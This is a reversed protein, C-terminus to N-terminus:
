FLLWPHQIIHYHFSVWHDSHPILLLCNSYTINFNVEISSHGSHGSVVMSLLFRNGVFSYIIMKNIQFHQVTISGLKIILAQPLFPNFPVTLFAQNAPWFCLLAATEYPKIRCVTSSHSFNSLSSQPSSWPSCLRSKISCYLMSGQTRFAIPAPDVPRRQIEKCVWDDLRSVLARHQSRSLAETM